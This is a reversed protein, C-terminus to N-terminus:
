LFGTGSETQCKGVPDHLIRGFNKCSKNLPHTRGARKMFPFSFDFSNCIRKARSTFEQKSLESQSGFLIATGGEAFRYTQKFSSAFTEVKKHFIPDDEVLNTAVVGGESLRSKCLEFFEVTSLHYPHHGTGTFCDILIIDYDGSGTSLFERGDRISVRMRRDPAMGFFDKAIDVITTDIETCDIVAEPFYHHLFMPLRGGGFGFVNIRKPNSKWVLSLTMAQTYIGLLNLPDKLDIRSMAGSLATTGADFRPDGFFLSVENGRKLILALRDSNKHTFILGDPATRLWEMRNLINALNERYWRPLEGSNPSTADHHCTM